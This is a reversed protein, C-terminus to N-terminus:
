RKGNSEAHTLVIEVLEAHSLRGVYDALNAERGTQGMGTREMGTREMSSVPAVPADDAPRADLDTNGDTLTRAAAVCHKCFSGDEAAPCSCGWMPEDDELWLHM